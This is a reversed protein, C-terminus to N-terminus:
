RHQPSLHDYSPPGKARLSGGDAFKFMSVYVKDPVIVQTKGLKVDLGPVQPTAVSPSDVKGGQFRVSQWIAEGTATSSGCGFGIQNRGAHAPATFKGTGDLLPEDDARVRIDSGQIRVRYTHFATQSDWKTSLKAHALVVQDRYFTVGEEHTGDSVLLAVGWPASCSAVRLRAEITAGTQPDVQWDCQYFRGSGNENSPDAIRLGQPTTQSSTLPSAWATVGPIPFGEDYLTQWSQEEGVGFALATSLVLLFMRWRLM